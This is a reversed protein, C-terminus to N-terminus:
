AMVEASRRADVLRRLERAAARPDDAACVARVVAVAPAGAELVTSLNDRDIGGIAVWPIPLGATAVASVLELGVAPTQPKTPTVFVPGVGLYDAGDGVAAIAQEVSHTSRGVIGDPWLRRAVAVPLDDQGLHVGDAACAMAIDIRDNVILLVGAAATLERCREALRYDALGADGKRRLQVADAGGDCAAAVCALARAVPASADSVVYLRVRRLRRQKETDIITAPM